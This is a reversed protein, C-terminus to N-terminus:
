SSQPMQLHPVFARFSTGLGLETELFISGNIKELNEKVIYLGLGSGPHSNTGRFFMEFISAKLEERIGEGNDSIKITVGDQSKEVEVKVQHLDESYTRRFKFANSILNTLVTKFRIKDSILVVDDGCHCSFKADQQSLEDRVDLILQKINISEPKTGMRANRSYDLIDRIYNDLKNLTKDLLHIYPLSVNLADVESKLLNILGIGTTIPARLDHSVKYVFSDLEHNIKILDREKLEKETVDLIYGELINDGERTQGIVHGKEEVHNWRGDKHKIRYHLTYSHHAKIDSVNKTSELDEPHILGGFSVKKNLFAERRYGTLKEIHSNIYIIPWDEAAILKYVILPLNETLSLYDAKSDKLALSTYQLDLEKGIGAALVDFLEISSGSQEIPQEFLSVVLGIPRAAHDFLPTGIYGEIGMEALVKDEPFMEFVRKPYVCTGRDIVNECPSGPIDYRFTDVIQGDHCMAVTEIQREGYLRGIFTYDGGTAEGLALVMSDLFDQGHHHATKVIIDKLFTKTQRSDM